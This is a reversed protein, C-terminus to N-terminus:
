YKEAPVEMSVRSLMNTLWADKGTSAYKERYYTWWAEDPVGRTHYFEETRIRCHYCGDSPRTHTSPHKVAQEPNVCFEGVLTFQSRYEPLKVRLRKRIILKLRILM